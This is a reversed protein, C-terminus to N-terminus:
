QPALLHWVDPGIFGREDAMASALCTPKDLGHSAAFEAVADRTREGFEGDTPVAYGHARLRTQALRVNEGRDGPRLLLSPETRRATAVGLRAAVADRLEPLRAYLVDGPCATANFDRHGRILDPSIGYQSAIFAVLEVLSDWLAPTVDVDTYLGENEIGIVESNHNGVNAGMVHQTGGAVAEYSRHRGETMHGGRSITFQQGSDIWGNSDMHFNQISRSIAFARELSYDTTNGPNVTHHVVIYTPAHNLMTIPASPPRAGWYGTGYVLPPAQPRPAATAQAPLTLAAGVASVALGGGLLLTRRNIAPTDAM